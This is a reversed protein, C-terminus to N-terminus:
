RREGGVATGPGAGSRPGRSGAVTGARLACLLAGAAVVATEARLVQPSLGVAPLGLAREAGDWGGEPGVALVPHDLGPPDGGLEALALAPETGALAAVTTPAAIEPLWVRRCQAAAERAVRALRAAAHAGREGEWRVVSRAATLPVIRDVGLETLKQVAWAPRDGKAPAFAVTLALAPAPETAPPGLPELQGPPRFACATWTGRGDAAVVTEGDALRLVRALHHRDEDSLEPRSPDAVFVQAAASARAAVGDAM